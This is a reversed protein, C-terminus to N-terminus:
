RSAVVSSDPPHQTARRWESAVIVTAIGSMELIWNWKLGLVRSGIFRDIHHFSAARIVVFALVATTGVLALRTPIPAKWSWRLLAVVFLICVLAVGVIFWLQVTRRDKYWGQDFAVLRGLETLATQLDLQKNIALALFLTSIIQWLKRESSVASYATKWTAWVALFYLAVTVWGGITPDGIGPRWDFQHM